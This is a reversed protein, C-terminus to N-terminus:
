YKLYCVAWITTGGSPIQFDIYKVGCGPVLNKYDVGINWTANDVITPHDDVGFIDTQGTFSKDSGAGSSPTGNSQKWDGHDYIESVTIAGLPITSLFIPTYPETDTVDYLSLMRIGKKFDPPGKDDFWCSTFLTLILVVGCALLTQKITKAM